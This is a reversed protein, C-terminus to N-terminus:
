PCTAPEVYCTAGACASPSIVTMWFGTNCLFDAENIRFQINTYGFELYLYVYAPSTCTQSSYRFASTAVLTIEDCVIGCKCRSLGTGPDCGVEANCNSITGHLTRPAYTMCLASSPLNITYRWCKVGCFCGSDHEPEDSCRLITGDSCRKISGDACRIIENAM